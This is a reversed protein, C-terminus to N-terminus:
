AAPKISQLYEFIRKEHDKDKRNLQQFVSEITDEADKDMFMSYHSEGAENELLIALGQSVQGFTHGGHRAVAHHVM